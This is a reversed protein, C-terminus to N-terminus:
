KENEKIKVRHFVPVAFDVIKCTRKKKKCVILLDPRRSLMLHDTQIEYDGLLTHIENEMLIEPNDMYWETM